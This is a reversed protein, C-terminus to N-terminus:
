RVVEQLNDELMEYKIDEINDMQGTKLAWLFFVGAMAFFVLCMWIFMGLGPKTILDNLIEQASVHM